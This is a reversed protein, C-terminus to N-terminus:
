GVAREAKGFLEEAIQYGMVTVPNGRLFESENLYRGYAIDITQIESFEESVGYIGVNNIQVNEYSVNSSTSNFYCVHKALSSKEKVFKVEDYKPSPRNVYKWWPYDQDDGSGIAM